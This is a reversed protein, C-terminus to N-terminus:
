WPPSWAVNATHITALTDTAPAATALPDATWTATAWTATAWTATPLLRDIGPTGDTQARSSSHAPLLFIGVLLAAAILLLTLYRM